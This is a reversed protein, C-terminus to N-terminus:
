STAITSAKPPSSSPHPPQSCLACRVTWCNVFVFLSLYLFQPPLSVSNRNYFLQAISAPPSHTPCPPPHFRTARCCTLLFTTGLHFQIVEFRFATCVYFNPPYPMSQAVGDCPHFAHSAFPTPLKWLHHPKHIKAYLLKSPCSLTLRPLPSPPNPMFPYQWSSLSLPSSLFPPLLTPPSFCRHLGRHIWYIFCDTFALFALAEALLTCWPPLTHQGVNIAAPMGDYSCRSM